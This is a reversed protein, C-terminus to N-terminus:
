KTGVYKRREYSELKELKEKKTLYYWSPNVRIENWDYIDLRNSIEFIKRETYRHSKNFAQILRKYEKDNM